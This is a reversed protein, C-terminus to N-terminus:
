GGIYKRVAHTILREISSKDETARQILTSIIKEFGDQELENFLPSDLEKFLMSIVMLNIVKVNDVLSYNNIIHSLDKTSIKSKEQWMLEYLNTQKKIGAKLIDTCEKEIFEKLIAKSLINNQLLYNQVNNNEMEEFTDEIGLSDISDTALKDLEIDDEAKFGDIQGEPIIQFNDLKDYEKISDLALDSNEEALEELDNESIITFEVDGIRFVDGIELMVYYSSMIPSHDQNMYVPCGKYSMLCFSGSNMKIQVHKPQIKGFVDHVVWQCESSSGIFGGTEKFVMQKVGTKLKTDDTIKIYLEEM